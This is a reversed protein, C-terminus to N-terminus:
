KMNETRESDKQLMHICTDLDELDANRCEAGPQCAWNWTRCLRGTQTDLAVSSDSNAPIFRQVGPSQALASKLPSPPPQKTSCGVLPLTIGLLLVTRITM